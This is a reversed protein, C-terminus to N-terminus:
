ECEYISGGWLRVDAYILIYWERTSKDGRPFLLRKKKKLDFDDFNGVDDTRTIVNNIMNDGDDKGPEHIKM